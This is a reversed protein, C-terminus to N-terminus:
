KGCLFHFSAYGVVQDKMGSTDGSNCADVLKVILGKEQVVKLLAKIPLGGCAQEYTIDEYRLQLIAEITRKDLDNATAYDLYHSLDSSVVILTEGGGWIERLVVAVEEVDSEGILLPVISFDKDKLVVQLFPLQTELSNEGEFAPEVYNVMEFEDVLKAVLKQDILTEGLPTAYYNCATAAIGRFPYRHAPALIVVRKINNANELCAFAKAATLGSYDYGAHPSIIAKPQPLNADSKHFFKEVTNKLETPDGPYFMGAVVPNKIKPM